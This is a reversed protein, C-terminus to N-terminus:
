RLLLQDVPAFDDRLPRADGILEAIEGPPVFTGDLPDLVPRGV